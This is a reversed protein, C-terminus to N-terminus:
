PQLKQQEFDFTTIPNRPDPGYENAGSQGETALLVILWITGILPILAVLLFWGSKGIDHLRRVGVALGPLLIALSALGLITGLIPVAFSLINVVISLLVQFLFFWWYEPRTARGKFNVYNELIAKKVYDIMNM